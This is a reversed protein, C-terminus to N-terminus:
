DKICRVSVGRKEAAENPTPYGHGLESSNYDMFVMSVENPENSAGIEWWESRENMWYFIGNTQSRFGGPLGTFGSENTAGTNPELWHMTGTEKLKGGAASRGGLYNSLTLWENQTPVHWGEPCLKDSLVVYYNYLAGYLNKNDTNNNYWCYGPTTLESWETNDVVLPISTGNNLHTTKLNEAMWWQNGIKITKYVNGDIDTVLKKHLEIVLPLNGSINSYCKLSDLLFDYNFTNYGSKEITLTYTSLNDKITVVNNAVNDLPQVYSYSGNNLALETNIFQGNDSDIVGIMFSFIKVEIINFRNLGFDEPKKGRTSIVEVNISTTTNKVVSFSLPLPYDVNQAELSETHPLAFITSDSANLVLFETLIYNGTKIAIKQTFYYENMKQIKLESSAYKTPSGDSNQITFLVKDAEDLNNYNITCKLDSISEPNPLSITFAVENFLEPSERDKECSLIGFVVFVAILLQYRYISRTKM